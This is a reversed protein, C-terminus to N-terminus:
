MWRGFGFTLRLMRNSRLVVTCLLGCMEAFVGHCPSSGSSVPRPWPPAKWMKERQYEQWMKTHLKSVAANMIQFPQMIAAGWLPVRKDVRPGWFRFRLARWPSSVVKSLRPTFMYVCTYIYAQVYTQRDTHAYTQRHSDGIKQAVINKFENMLQNYSPLRVIAEASKNSPTLLQPDQALLSM